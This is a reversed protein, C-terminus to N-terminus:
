YGRGHRRKLRRLLRQFRDMTEEFSVFKRNEHVGGFWHCHHASSFGPYLHRNDFGCVRGNDGAHIDHNVYAMAYKVVDGTRSEAWTEVRVVGGGRTGSRADVDKVAAM